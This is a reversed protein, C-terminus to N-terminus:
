RRFQHDQFMLSLDALVEPISSNMAMARSEDATQWADPESDIIHFSYCQCPAWFALTPISPSRIM